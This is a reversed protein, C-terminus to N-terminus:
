KEEIYRETVREAVGVFTVLLGISNEIKVSFKYILLINNKYRKENLINRKM